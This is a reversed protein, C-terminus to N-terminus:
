HTGLNRALGSDRHNVRLVNNTERPSIIAVFSYDYFNNFHACVDGCIVNEAQIEIITRVDNSLDRRVTRIKKKGFIM